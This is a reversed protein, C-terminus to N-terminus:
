TGNEQSPLALLADKGCTCAQSDVWANFDDPFNYQVGAVVPMQKMKDCYTLHRAYQRLRELEARATRLERESAHYSRELTRAHILMEEFRKHPAYGFQIQELLMETLPTADTVPPTM